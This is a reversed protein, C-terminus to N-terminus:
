DFHENWVEQRAIEATVTDVTRHGCKECTHYDDNLIRGDVDGPAIRQAAEYSEAPVRGAFWQGNIKRRFSYLNIM